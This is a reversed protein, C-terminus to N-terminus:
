RIPSAATSFQNANLLMTKHGIQPFDHEVVFDRVGQAKPLTGGNAHAVSSYEM